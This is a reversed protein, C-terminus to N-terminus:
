RTCEVSEVAVKQGMMWVFNIDVNPGEHMDHMDDMLNECNNLMVCLANGIVPKHFVIDMLERNHMSRTSWYTHNGVPTSIRFQQSELEDSQVSQIDSYDVWEFDPLSNLLASDTDSGDEESWSVLDSYSSAHAGPVPEHIQNPFSSGTADSAHSVPFEAQSASPPFPVQNAGFVIDGFDSCSRYAGAFGKGDESTSAESRSWGSSSSPSISPMSESSGGMAINYSAGLLDGGMDLDLPSSPGPSQADLVATLASDFGDSSSSSSSSSALSSTSALTSLTHFSPDSM